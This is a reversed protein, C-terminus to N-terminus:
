TLLQITPVLGLGSVVIKSIISEIRPYSLPSTQAAALYGIFRGHNNKVKLGLSQIINLSQRRLVPM